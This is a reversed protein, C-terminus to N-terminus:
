SNFFVNILIHRKSLGIFPVIRSFTNLKEGTKKSINSFLDDFNLKWDLKVAVLKKAVM